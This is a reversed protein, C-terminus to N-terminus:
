WHGAMVCAGVDPAQELLRIEHEIAFFRARHQADRVGIGQPCFTRCLDPLM